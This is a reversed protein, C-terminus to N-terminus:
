DMRLTKMAKAMEMEVTIAVSPSEEKVEMIEWRARGVVAQATESSACLNSVSSQSSMEDALHKNYNAEKLDLLKKDRQQFRMAVWIGLPSKKNCDYKGTLYECRTYEHGLCMNPLNKPIKMVRKIRLQYKEVISFGYQLSLSAVSWGCQFSCVSYRGGVWEWFTFANNPDIGFKEATTDRVLPHSLSCTVMKHLYVDYMCIMDEDDNWSLHRFVYYCCACWSVDFLTGRLDDIAVSTSHNSVSALAFFLHSLVSVEDPVASLADSVFAIVPSFLLSHIVEYYLELADRTYTHENDWPLQCLLLVKTDLHTSFMDTLRM